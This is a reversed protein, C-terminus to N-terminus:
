ELPINSEKVVRTWRVVEAKLLTALEAGSGFVPSAGANELQTKVEAQTMVQALSQQLHATIPKPIGAPGFVGWWVELSFGRLGFEDLTPIEPVLPSRAPSTVAIGRVAGSRIHPLSANVTGLVMHLEGGMLDTFAPGIGKYPIHTANIGAAMNILETGLHQFGGVGGSGYNVKGPRAKVYEVYERFTKIPLKNNILVLMPGAGIRAIPEIDNFTDYPLKKRIAANSSISSSIFLLTYGDPASKAVIDTGLTGGAGGRNDILISQKFRISLQQGLARAIADNSGGPPFPIVLRIPKDPYSGQALASSHAVPLALAASVLFPSVVFRAVGDLRTKM